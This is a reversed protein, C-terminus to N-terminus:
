LCESLFCPAHLSLPERAMLVPVTESKGPINLKPSVIAATTKDASTLSALMRLAAAESTCVLESILREEEREEWCAYGEAQGEHLFVQVRMGCCAQYPLWFDQYYALDRIRFGDHGRMMTEYLSLCAAADADTWSGEEPPLAAKDLVVRKMFHSKTFGFPVYLDWDYAQLIWRADAFEQFVHDLLRKMYGCRRYERRVAVGELFRFSVPRGNLSLQWQPFMCMAIIQDGSRLVRCDQPRYMRSFYFAASKPTEEAFSDLWLANLQDKEEPKPATIEWSRFVATYKQAIRIPHMDRKAKILSPLGMDDERNILTVAPDAIELYNKLIAVYLGRINRDAKEVHIDLMYPTTHSVISFAKMRGDITIVGGDLSLEEAHELLFRIGQEEEQIGFIDDHSDQWESLLSFIDDFDDRSLRHFAWRGEYEKLFANYHNRRKQMKKGKLTEQQTRSYIYDKGDWRIDFVVQDQFHEALWDRWERSLCSMRAPIGHQRGYALMASVAEMRYEEACFPMYWYTEDEAEIHFCVLAFHAHVEFYFPYPYQWMLMTVVNANCDEYGALAIWPQLEHMNDITLKKM